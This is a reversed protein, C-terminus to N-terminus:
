APPTEGVAEEWHRTLEALRALAQQEDGVAFSISHDRFYIYVVEGEAQISYIAATLFVHRGYHLLPGTTQGWRDAIENLLEIAAAPSDAAVELKRQDDTLITVASEDENQYVAIVKGLDITFQPHQYLAMAKIQASITSEDLM